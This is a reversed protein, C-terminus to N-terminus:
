LHQQRAALTVWLIGDADQKARVVYLEREDTKFYHRPSRTREAEYRVGASRLMDEAEDWPRALIDPCDM